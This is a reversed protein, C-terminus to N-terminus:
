PPNTAPVPGGGPRSLLGWEEELSELTKIFGPTPDLSSAAMVADQRDPDILARMFGTRRHQPWGAWILASAVYHAADEVLYYYLGEGMARRESHCYLGARVVEAAIKRDKCRVLRGM